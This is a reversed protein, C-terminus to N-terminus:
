MEEKEFYDLAQNRMTKEFEGKAPLEHLFSNCDGSELFHAKMRLYSVQSPNTDTAVVRGAKELFAFIQDSGVGLVSDGPKIELGEMIAPLSENTNKYELNSSSLM